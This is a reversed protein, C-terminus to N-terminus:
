FADPATSPPGPPAPPRRDSPGGPKPDGQPADPAPAAAARPGAPVYAHVTRTARDAFSLLLPASTRLTVPDIEGCLGLGAGLDLFVVSDVARAERVASTVTSGASVDVLTRFALLRAVRLLEDADLVRSGLGTAPGAMVIGLSPAERGRVYIEREPEPGEARDRLYLGFGSDGGVFVTPGLRAPRDAVRVTGDTLRWGPLFVGLGKLALRWIPRSMLDPVAPMFEGRPGRPSRPEDDHGAIM